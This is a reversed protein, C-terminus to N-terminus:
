SRDKPESLGLWALLALPATDARLVRPGLSVPRFGHGVAAGEEGPSLGGEPGSLVLLGGIARLDAEEPTAAAADFSLVVRAESSGACLGGLASLWGDLRTPLAVDAVRSRGCQESAAAAIAQWHRQRAVARDGALRVVSRECVLPQIAAAGLEVAKEVLGDMRENAPMGIALTVVCPLERAAVSRAAGLRVEVGAREIRTIEAPWEVDERGNFLAVSQGPQMRLVQVHRTAAPPLVVLAGEVLPRDVYLRSQAM